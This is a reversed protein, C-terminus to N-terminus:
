FQGCWAGQEHRRGVVREAIKKAANLIREWIGTRRWSVYRDYITKWNGYREPIDPWAAGAHLRWFIGNLIPRHPDFPHGVKGDNIPLLPEILLYQQDSLEYRAM